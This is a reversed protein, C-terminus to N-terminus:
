PRQQRLNATKSWRSLIEPLALDGSNAAKFHSAGIQGIDKELDAKEEPSLLQGHSRRLRHLFALASFPTPNVPADLGGDSVAAMAPKKRSFVVSAAIVVLIGLGLLLKGLWSGTSAALKVGAAAQAPDITVLDADQYRRYETSAPSVGPKQAPFAFVVDGRLDPKRRYTLSWNRDAQPLRQKGDSTFQSVLLKGDVTELDFGERKTEFLQDLDPIVGKGRAQIEVVVRGDKWERDDMVLSLALDPCPRNPVEGDRADLPEVQSMVPLVVQGPQDVFDMDMQISPIRDVAADRARLVLYALPTEVWGDRPLDITKVAADHWTVSLVEFQGDLAANINKAFDDRLDRADGAGGMGMMAGMGSPRNQLYKSFGGSERLLQRSTELSLFAGFPESHGVRGPGDITVRLQIEDLLERYYDLSKTASAAAPNNEGVIALGAGLFRQRMNAPVRPFVEGLMKAFLEIHKEGAGGPLARMLDGISKLGPDTRSASSTLRGLDSAGLMVYFWQQYPAITWQGRPLDALKASYIKAATAFSEFAEDRLSVYDTLKVQRELEYQSADYFLQGRTIFGEWTADEARVGRKALELATRYGRSVEDKAEEETRNTGAQQQTEMNRWEENLRGRMGSLLDLLETQVMKEPPGFIAQIDDMRYVEAGSHLTMFSQVILAPDLPEPSIERLRALLDRFQEINQKQRARTLPIGAGQQQLQPPIYMGFLRMQKVADNEAPKTRASVWGALVDQCVERELGPYQKAYDRLMSLDPQEPRLIGVKVLTLAVRQVLGPNLRTVLERPPASELIQAASLNPAEEGAPNYMGYRRLALKEAQTKEMSMAGGARYCAEAETLWNMVLVAVNAPLEDQKATLAELILRQTGLSSVRVQLDNGRAATQGLEGISGILDSLTPTQGLLQESVLSKAQAPELLPLLQVLRDMALRFQPRTYNGFRGSKMLRAAILAAKQFQREDRDAIGTQTFYEMAFVLETTDAADWAAPDLPLFPAADKIWGLSSLLRVALKRGDPTNGGLGKWGKQLREILTARGGEGVAMKVLQTLAPVNEERLDGPSADVLEYFDKSLLPPAKKKLDEKEKQLRVRRANPDEEDSADGPRKWVAGASLSQEALAELLRTYGAVASEPPVTALAKGVGQWDGLVVMVNFAEQANLPTDRRQARTAALLADSSRDFKMTKLAAGLDAGPAAEKKVEGSPDPQASPDAKPAEAPATPAAAAPQGAAPQAPVVPAAPVAPVVPTAPVTAPAPQAPPTAPQPATTQAPAAAAALLLTFIIGGRLPGQHCSHNM